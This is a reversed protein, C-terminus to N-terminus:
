LSAVDAREPRGQAAGWRRRLVRALPSGAADAVPRAVLDASVFGRVLVSSWRSPVPVVHDVPAGGLAAAVARGLRVLSDGDRGYKARRVLAGVPGAYPGLWWGRSVGEPCTALPVLRDPWEQVCVECLRVPESVVAAREACGDCTPAGLAHLIELM